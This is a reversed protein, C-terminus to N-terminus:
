ALLDNILSEVEAEGMGDMQIVVAKVVENTSDM